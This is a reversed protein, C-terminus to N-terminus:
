LLHHMYSYCGIIVCNGPKLQDLDMEMEDEYSSMGSGESELDWSDEPIVFDQVHFRKLLDRKKLSM